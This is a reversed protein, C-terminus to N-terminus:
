GVAGFQPAKFQPLGAQITAITDEPSYGLSEYGAVTLAQTDPSLQAFNRGVIKNPAPLAAAYQQAQTYMPPVYGGPATGSGPGMADLRIPAVSGPDWVGPAKPDTSPQYAVQTGGPPPAYANSVASVASPATGGLQGALYGLSAPTPAAQPAQFSPPAYDGTLAAISNPIGSTRSLGYLANAAAFANAPGRLSAMLQAANIGNQQQQIGITAQQYAQTAAQQAAQIATQADGNKALWEHYTRQYAIEAAQNAILGAQYNFYEGQGFGSGSAGAGPDSGSLAAGGIQNPTVGKTQQLFQWGLPNVRVVGERIAKYLLQYFAPPANQAPTSIGTETDSRGFLTALPAYEGQLNGEWSFASDEGGGMGGGGTGGGLAVAPRNMWDAGLRGTWRADTQPETGNTPDGTGGLGYRTNYVQGDISALLGPQDLRFQNYTGSGPIYGPLLSADGLHPLYEPRIALPAQGFGPVGQGFPVSATGAGISMPNRSPVTSGGPYPGSGRALPGIANNGIQDGTLSGTLTANAVAQQPTAGPATFGGPIPQSSPMGVQGAAYSLWPDPGVGPQTGVPLTSPDPGAMGPASAPPATDLDEGQEGTEDDTYPHHWIGDPGRYSGGYIRGM